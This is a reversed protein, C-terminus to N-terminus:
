NYDVIPLGKNHAYVCLMTLAHVFFWHQNLSDKDKLLELKIGYLKRTPEGSHHPSEIIDFNMGLEQALRHANVFTQIGVDKSGDPNITYTIYDSRVILENSETTLQNGIIAALQKSLLEEPYMEDCRLVRILLGKDTVTTAFEPNLRELLENFRDLDAEEGVEIINIIAEEIVEQGTKEFAESIEARWNKYNEPYRDKFEM